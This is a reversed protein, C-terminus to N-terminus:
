LFALAVEPDSRTVSEVDPYSDPMGPLAEGIFCLIISHCADFHDRGNCVKHDDKTTMKIHLLSFVAWNTDAGSLELVLCSASNKLRGGRLTHRRVFLFRCFVSSCTFCNALPTMFLKARSHLNVTCYRAKIPFAGDIHIYCVAAKHLVKHLLISLIM